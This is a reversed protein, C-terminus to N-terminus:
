GAKPAYVMEDPKLVFGLKEYLPQGMASAGLTLRGVGIEASEAIVAEMLARAVGARRHAPVVYVDRVRGDFGSFPRGYIPMSQVITLAAAGVVEGDILAVWSRLFSDPKSLEATFFTACHAEYAARSVPDTSKREVSSELRMRALVLADDVTARRVLLTQTQM